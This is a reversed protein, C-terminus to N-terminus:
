ELINLLGSLTSQLWYLTKLKSTEWNLLFRRSQGKICILNEKAMPAQHLKWLSADSENLKSIILVGLNDGTAIVNEKYTKSM